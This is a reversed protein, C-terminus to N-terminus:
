AREGIRKIEWQLTVGTRAAVAAIAEEGLDELDAASASGTNILFNCHLESFQAGGRRKGRFGAEDLLQWTKRGGSQEPDPNKFTSGGTKERIPQSAERKAMIDAMRAEIEAREGPRGQFTASLFIFDQPARCTRYAFGLEQPIVALQDGNRRLAQAGALADKIEGGYAGANMRIAGGISGPIGRLFELGSIGARAAMIAVQMDLAGAGARIMNDPLITIEGFARGALRIVVGRVGADRVILNSGVGIVTIPIDLPAARLFTALDDADAPLFLADAPGGVRFWTYPALPADPTIKGRVPPLRDLLASM